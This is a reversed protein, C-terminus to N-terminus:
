TSVFLVIIDFYSRLKSLFHRHKGETKLEAWNELKVIKQVNKLVIM